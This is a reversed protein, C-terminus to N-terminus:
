TLLFIIKSTDLLAATSIVASTIFLARSLFENKFLLFRSILMNLLYISLTIAPLIWLYLKPALMQGGWTKSYFLPIEPPLKVFSTLILLSQILTSLMCFLFIFFLFKDAFMGSSRDRLDSEFSAM